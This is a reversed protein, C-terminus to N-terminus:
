HLPLGYFRDGRSMDYVFVTDKRILQVMFKRITGSINFATKMKFKIVHKSVLTTFKFSNQCKIASTVHKVQM